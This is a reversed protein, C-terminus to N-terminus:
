RNQAGLMLMTRKATGKVVLKVYYAIDVYQAYERRFRRAEKIQGDAIMYYLIGGVRKKMVDPYRRYDDGFKELLQKRGEIRRYASSSIADNTLYYRIVPKDVFAIKDNRAIRRWLDVDQGSVMAEDFLGARVCAGRSLLPVSCGGIFNGYRILADYAEGEYHPKDHILHHSTGDKVNEMTGYVIGIGEGFAPLLNELKDAIWEDDDDLLGIIPATTEAIGINRSGNAGRHEWNEIYRVSDAYRAMLAVIEGHREWDPADDVVVIESPPVTQNRVSEIARRLIEPARKHTTIIAAVRAAYDM